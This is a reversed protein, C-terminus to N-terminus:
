SRHASSSMAFNGDGTGGAAAVHREPDHQAGASAAPEEPFLRRHQLILEQGHLIRGESSTADSSRMMAVTRLVFGLILLVFGVIAFWTATSAM